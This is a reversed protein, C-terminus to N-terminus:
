EYLSKLNQRLSSDELFDTNDSIIDISGILSRETLSMIQPDKICGIIAKAFREGQIIRFPRGFFQSVESSLEETIELSNHMEALVRYARCLAEEREQWSASHLAGTLAPELRSASQLRSFATGLWKAYPPYEKGMLLALRMIDRIIRAGIIMSGNEDGELGARGVLHEDQGIRAWISAMIYLWVDRPYWALRNCIEKLGLNDHFVRGATISRLKQHPLTLWDVPQLEENIDINLYSTFFGKITYTEVRHNVPGTDVPQMVQVNNDDPDPETFNTSYGKYSVPLEKSLVERIAEWKSRFDDQSLFLMVRPGWHHDMSMETDFGLVESGSGIVAASYRLGYYHTELIPKVLEHFFGEAL